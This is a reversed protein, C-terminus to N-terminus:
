TKELKEIVPDMIRKPLFPHTQLSPFSEDNPLKPRHMKCGLSSPHILELVSQRHFFKENPFIIRLNLM